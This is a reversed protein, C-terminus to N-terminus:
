RAAAEPPADPALRLNRTVHGGEEVEIPEGRGELSKLFGPDQSPDTEMRELAYLRYAGPMVGRIEFHGAEDASEVRYFSWVNEFRGAPALLVYAKKAPETDSETVVGDVVAGRTSVVINLPATTARDITMDEALVDQEGLRMSKIYGGKPIPEVGIDWVGALVGEIRFSGDPKVEASPQSSVAFDDGQVLWVRFQQPEGPSSGELRVSGSLDVGPELGLNVQAPSAGLEVHEIGRYQRGQVTLNAILLYRGPLLDKVEFTYDTQNVVAGQNFRPAGPEGEASVQVWVQPNPGAEGPVVVKGEIKSASQLALHFDFGELNKGADLTIPSAASLRDANPYIQLGYRAEDIPQGRVVESRGAPPQWPQPRATLFYKGPALGGLFYRGRGDTMVSAVNVYRPKRREFWAMLLQVNVNQVPDGEADVVVGSISGAPQMRLVIHRDEGAALSLVVPPEAPRVAGFRVNQYGDRHAALYYPGPPVWSFSFAGRADTWALATSPEEAKTALTVAARPIRAGTADDLVVGAISAYRVEPPTAAAAFVTVCCGFAALTRVCAAEFPRPAFRSAAM